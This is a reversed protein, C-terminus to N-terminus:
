RVWDTPVEFLLFFSFFHFKSFVNPVDEDAGEVWWIIPFSFYSLRGIQPANLFIRVELPNQSLYTYGFRSM